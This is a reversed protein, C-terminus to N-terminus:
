PSVYISTQPKAITLISFLSLFNSFDQNGLLQVSVMLHTYWKSLTLIGSTYIISQAPVVVAM